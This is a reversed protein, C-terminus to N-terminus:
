RMNYEDHYKKEARIRNSIVICESGYPPDFSNAYEGFPEVDLRLNISSCVMRRQVNYLPIIKGPISYLPNPECHTMIIVM